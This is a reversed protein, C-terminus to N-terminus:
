VRRATRRLCRSGIPSNSCPFGRYKDGADVSLGPSDKFLSADRALATEEPTPAYAEYDKRDDLTKLIELLPNPCPGLRSVLPNKPDFAYTELQYQPSALIERVEEPSPPTGSFASPVAALLTALLLKRM